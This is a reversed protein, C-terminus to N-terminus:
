YTPLDPRRLGLADRGLLRFLLGLPAFVTYFPVALVLRSVAWGIPFTAVTMGVFLFRVSAPRLLGSVGVAVALGALAAGALVHGGHGGVRWAFFGVFVLWLAAFQRLVRNTPRWPIDSWTM